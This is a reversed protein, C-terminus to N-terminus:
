TMTSATPTATSRLAMPPTAPLCRPSSSPWIAMTSDAPCTASGCHRAKRANAGAHGNRPAILRRGNTICTAPKPTHRARTARPTSPGPPCAASSGHCPAAALVNDAAAFQGDATLTQALLVFDEPQCADGHVLARAASLARENAGAKRSAASLVYLSARDGPTVTLQEAAAEVAEAYKGETLLREARARYLGPKAEQVNALFNDYPPPLIDPFEPHPPLTTALKTYFLGDNINGLQANAVALAQAFERTDPRLEYAKAIITAARAPEGLLLSTLGVLLFAEACDTELRLALEAPPSVATPM